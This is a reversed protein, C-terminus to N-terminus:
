VEGGRHRGPAPRVLGAQAAPGRWGTVPLAFKAVIRDTFPEESFRVLRVPTASRRVEVRAGPPLEVTRRGDCWMVGHVHSHPVVEVALRTDPGLVLPRAFLAHASIPVLLLAQVQPWVVPGGGSFAYATSGTPTSMVVGDCGWTSLPRGDVEVAVELMRERASKEVSAENLAWNQAVVRNEHLVDVELTMREEVHYRAGVIREVVTEIDDREAEALFGVRGMNVGLLPVGAPRAIEAGRLITGDGGFVVVLEYGTADVHSPVPSKPSVVRDTPVTEHTPPAEPVVEVEIGHGALREAFEEALDPVEPRTPHTVLMIRRTM